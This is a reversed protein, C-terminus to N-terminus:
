KKDGAAPSTPAQKAANDAPPAPKNMLKAAASDLQAGLDAPKKEEAQPAPPAPPQKAPDTGQGDGQMDEPKRLKVDLSFLYPLKKDADKANAKNETKRLDSRGMWPSVDINRMYTAVRANSEALGELTLTSGVQKMSSLRAGDPITKVMEDFLHVMQSRNSQLQEIIEKRTLLQSRTKDLEKIEEIKKELGKIEGQLYTNRETQNDILHSMWYIAAFLVAFAAVATMLLMMYFERERLKRRDNRWPLLNIKAM